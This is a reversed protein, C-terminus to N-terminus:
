NSEGKLSDGVIVGLHQAVAGALENGVQMARQIKKHKLWSALFGALYADGCGTTDIVSVPKSQQKYVKSQWVALSGGSGLTIVVLKNMNRALQILDQVLASDKDSLGFFGVDWWQAYKKVFNVDKRFDTGDMFDVIKNGKFNIKTVQKFLHEIQSFYLTILIEHQKIFDIDSKSLSFQSLIGPYYGVFKKEGSPLIKIKQKATKGTLQHIQNNINLVISGNKDNGVCSVLDIKLGLKNAFYVVNLACGGPFLKGNYDDVGCDGVYVIKM